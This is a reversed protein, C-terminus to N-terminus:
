RHPETRADGRAQEALLLAGVPVADEGLAALVVKPGPQFADMVFRPLATAVAARLPEGLLSLGGGIVIVEPHILHTAHSLAFALDEATERLIQAADADGQELARQLVKAESGAAEAALRALLGEPQQAALARIKRDVAWGSCRSEVTQGTRDLRLHGIEVEGPTAGHYIAGEIALGGGVGSGLTVYFVPSSGRGAGACAEGLAAVNADNDVAVPLRTLSQLWSGLPFDSWGEVHHSCCVQGTRWDVPGGYGVGLAAARTQPLLERLTREIQQRIGAAGLSREVAFRFRQRINGRAAGVVVQLKTGGIEIGLYEPQVPRHPELTM